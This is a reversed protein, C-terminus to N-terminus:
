EYHKRMREYSLLVPCLVGVLVIGSRIVDDMDVMLWKLAVVTTISLLSSKLMKSALRGSVLNFLAYHLSLAYGVTSALANRDDIFLIGMVALGIPLMLAEDLLNRLLGWLVFIAGLMLAFVFTWLTPAQYLHRESFAVVLTCVILLTLCNATHLGFPARLM